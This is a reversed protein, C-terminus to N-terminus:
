LKKNGDNEEKLQDLLWQKINLHRQEFSPRHGYYWGEQEATDVYSLLQNLEAWTLSIKPKTM